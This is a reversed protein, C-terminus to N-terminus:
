NSSLYVMFENYQTVKVILDDKIRVVYIEIGNDDIGKKPLQVINEELVDVGLKESIMKAIEHM